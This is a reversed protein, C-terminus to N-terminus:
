RRAQQLCKLSDVGTGRMHPLKTQPVCIVCHNPFKGTIVVEDDHRLIGIKMLSTENESKWGLDYPDAKAIAGRCIDFLNKPLALGTDQFKTLIIDVCEQGKGLVAAEGLVIEIASVIRLCDRDDPRIWRRLRYGHGTCDQGHAKRM